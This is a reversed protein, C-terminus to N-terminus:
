GWASSGAGSSFRQGRGAGALDVAVNFRTEAAAYINGAAEEYREYAVM